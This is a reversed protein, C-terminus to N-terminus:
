RALLLSTADVGANENINIIYLQYKFEKRGEKTAKKLKKKGEKKVKKSLCKRQNVIWLPFFHILQQIQSVSIELMLGEDDCVM